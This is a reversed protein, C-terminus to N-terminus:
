GDVPARTMWLEVADLKEPIPQQPVTYPM